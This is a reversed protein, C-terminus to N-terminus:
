APGKRTPRPRWIWRMGSLLLLLAPVIVLFIRGGPSSIWVAAFGLAPIRYAVTGITGAAPVAWHERATNADGQTVVDVKGGHRSVARVRHVLVREGGEPDDFTVIDGVRAATPSIPRVVVVDGTRITPTMSGSRVIMPRWGIALPLTAALLVAVVFTGLGWAIFARIRM